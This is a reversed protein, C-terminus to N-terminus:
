EKRFFIRGTNVHASLLRCLVLPAISCNIFNNPLMKFRMKWWCIFNEGWSSADVTYRIVVESGTLASLACLVYLVRAVFFFTGALFKM